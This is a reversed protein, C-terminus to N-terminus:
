RKKKIIGYVSGRRVYGEDGGAILEYKSEIYEKFKSYFKEKSLGLELRIDSLKAYGLNDKVRDYVEDLESYSVKQKGEIMGELRRIEERLRRLESLIVSFPDQVSVEYAKGGGVEYRKILGDREMDELLKELEEPNARIKKKIKSFAVPKGDYLEKIVSIVEEKAIM